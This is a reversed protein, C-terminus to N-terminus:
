VNQGALYGSSFAWQLNFGGTDADVDIVEGALFLGPVLRSEMSNRNIESTAVGGATVMAENFDGLSDIIWASERLQRVLKKRQEKTLGSCDGYERFPFVATKHVKPAEGLRDKPNPDIGALRMLTELLRDPVGLGALANKVLRKGSESIMQIIRNDLDLAKSAEVWCIQLEDGPSMFRSNDLIGPGSFGDHTIMLDGEFLAVKRGGRRLTIQAMDVAIGACGALPFLEDSGSKERIRPVTLSNNNILNGPAQVVRVPTLAPSPTIITHGMSALWCFADGTSGTSPYSQGGTTIIVRDALFVGRDTEVEFRVSDKSSDSSSNNSSDKPSVKPSVKPSDSPSDGSSNSIVSSNIVSSGDQSDTVVRKNSESEDQEADQAEDLGFNTSEVWFSRDRTTPTEANSTKEIRRVGKVRTRFQIDVGARGAADLLADLIDRSRESRPFIKNNGLTVFRIGQREFFQILQRNDFNFLAPKVFRDKGGYRPLFELIPRDNTLNCRGAGSVLLKKGAIDNKELIKVRNAGQKVAQIAAMIGAPGAGIVIINM